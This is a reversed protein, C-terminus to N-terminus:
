SPHLTLRDATGLRREIEALVLVGANSALRGDDFVARVPKGAISSLSSLILAGEMM